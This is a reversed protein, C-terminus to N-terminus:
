GGDAGIHPPNALPDQYYDKGGSGSIPVGAGLAPSGSQLRYAAPCPQPGTPLPTPVCNGGNGPSAFLPNGWKANTEKGSAQWAAFDPYTTGGWRWTAARPSWYLNNSIAMGTHGNPNYYFQGARGYQDRNELACINNKIQSGAAWTGGAYGFFFCASATSKATQAVNTYFTNGYISLANPPVKPVVNMLGGQAKLRDDNQSINYRFTNPGWAAGGPTDVYALLGSGANDHTYNYEVVSNSVGGDLDIGDWDCGATLSPYPEVAYVENFRIQVNKSTYALIGSTGGCSTVNAGIDHVRNHQIVAGNWGNATIAGGTTKPAMGLNYVINREVLVDTINTGSGWGYIGAGAKSTKSAGYLHNDIIKIGALPGSNGNVAYGLIAIQGGFVSETGTQFFGTIKSNQIIMGRTPTTTQQNQLLVGAATSGGNVIKLNDVTFGNVNDASIAASYTGTCNSTITAQGSGYSNVKFPTSASSGPVNTPNFALCGAFSAGGQFSVTSGAGFVSGNVKAITKWPQSSSTGSNSDNGTPSVYYTTAAAQAAPAQGVLASAILPLATLGLLIARLKPHTSRSRM